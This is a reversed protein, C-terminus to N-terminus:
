IDVGHKLKFHIKVNFLLRGTNYDDMGVFCKYCRAGIYSDREDGTNHVIFEILGADALDMLKKIDRTSYILNTQTM